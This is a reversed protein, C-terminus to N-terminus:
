LFGGRIGRIGKELYLRGGATAGDINAFDEEVAKKKRIGANDILIFKQGLASFPTDIADRTTGAISSVAVRKEGVLYNTLTSKGVNPRGAITIMATKTNM